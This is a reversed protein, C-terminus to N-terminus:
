IIVFYDKDTLLDFDINIISNRTSIKIDLNETKDIIRYSYWKSEDGEVKVIIGKQIDKKEIDNKGSFIFIGKLLFMSKQIKNGQYTIDLDPINKLLDDYLSLKQKEFFFIKSKAQNRLSIFSPIGIIISILIAIISILATDM